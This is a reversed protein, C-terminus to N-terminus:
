QNCEGLLGAAHLVVMAQWSQERASALRCESRSLMLGFQEPIPYPKRLTPLDVRIPVRLVSNWARRPDRSLEAGHYGGRTAASPCLSVHPMRAASPPRRPAPTPPVGEWCVCHEPWMELDKIALIYSFVAENGAHTARECSAHKGDPLLERVCLQARHWEPGATDGVKLPNSLSAAVAVLKCKSWLCYTSSKARCLLPHWQNRQPSHPM